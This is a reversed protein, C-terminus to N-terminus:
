NKGKHLFPIESFEGEIERGDICSIKNINWKGDRTEGSTTSIIGNVLTLRFENKDGAHNKQSEISGLAWTSLSLLDAICTAQSSFTDLYHSDTEYLNIAMPPFIIKQDDEFSQRVLTDGECFSKTRSYSGDSKRNEAILVISGHKAILFIQTDGVKPHDKSESIKLTGAEIQKGVCEESSQGLRQEAIIHEAFAGKSLSMSGLILFLFIHRM